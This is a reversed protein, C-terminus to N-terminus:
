YVKITNLQTKVSQIKSELEDKLVENLIGKEPDFNENFSPLSFTELVNGGSFPMRKKAIELVGLGGRAGTSTAMLLMPKKGFAKRGPIVSVWDFINKFAATYAGNNESLSILLLDSSDIKGAFELAQQPIGSQKERDVSYLPMEYDNLDVIEVTDDKFYSAAYTVLKKNISTSSNSGAFALIKM